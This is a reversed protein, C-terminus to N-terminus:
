ATQLAWPDPFFGVDILALYAWGVTMGLLLGVTVTAAAVVLHRVARRTM